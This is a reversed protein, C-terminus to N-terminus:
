CICILVSILYGKVSALIVIILQSPHPAGPVKVGQEQAYLITCDSQFVAQYNKLNCMFKALFFSFSHGCLSKNINIVINNRIFGFPCCDLHKDVPSSYSPISSLLLFLSVSICTIAQIFSLFMSFSLLSLCPVVYGTSQKYSIGLFPLNIFVSFLDTTAKTRPINM